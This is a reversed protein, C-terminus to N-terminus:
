IKWHYGNQKLTSREYVLDLDRVINEDIESAIQASLIATLEAEIDIHHFAMLDQYLEPTWTANIKTAGIGYENPKWKEFLVKRTCVNETNPNNRYKFGNIM